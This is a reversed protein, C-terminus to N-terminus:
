SHHYGSGKIIEHSRYIQELLILFALSHPLVFDSIKLTDHPIDAFLELDLGYSGGIIFTLNESKNRADEIMEAFALTNM